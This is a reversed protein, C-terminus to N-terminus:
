QLASSFRKWSAIRARSAALFGAGALFCQSLEYRRALEDARASAAFAVLLLAALRGARNM